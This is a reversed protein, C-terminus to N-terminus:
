FKIMNAIKMVNLGVLFIEGNSIYEHIWYTNYERFNLERYEALLTLKKRYQPM